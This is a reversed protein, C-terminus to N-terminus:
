APSYINLLGLKSTITRFQRRHLIKTFGDVLQEESSIPLLYFLNSQVKERVVHCDIDLHKIREHFSQNHAIHRAFKNDCYMVVTQTPKIQLDRLLYSLWQVECTTTALARYEAETSSRSITGQKKSKWSVLSSGLFICFGTTSKRTDLCTGWDSDSFAKLQIQNDALFFLGQSPNAKIYKLVHQVAAYHKVTPAQMFQSLLHISFYLNPRTNTLYLIKGILQRYVTPDPLTEVVDYLDKYEKLYPTSCPKYGIMGTQSLIDLAYKRQCIHIGKKSRAVEFGLFYKLNGLDKIKFASNLLAKVDEIDKLSNGTLIVDDVYVLLALFCGSNNRIFLSNDSQSQVFGISILFSSLKDFWQRSAQKLGYLSKRLKCVQGQTDLGPPPTM